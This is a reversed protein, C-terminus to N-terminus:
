IANKKLDKTQHFNCLLLLVFNTEHFSVIGSCHCEQITNIECSYVVLMVTNFNTLTFDTLLHRYILVVNTVILLIANVAFVVTHPEYWFLYSKM